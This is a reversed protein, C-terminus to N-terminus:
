GSPMARCCRSCCRSPWWRCTVIVSSKLYTGFNADEWATTFNEFHWGGFSGFQTIEDPSQLATFVIGVIPLMALLSFAGLVVYTLTQETRSTM